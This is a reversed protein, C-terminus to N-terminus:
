EGDYFMKRPVSPDCSASILGRVIPTSRSELFDLGAAGTGHPHEFQTPSSALPSGHVAIRCPFNPRFPIRPMGDQRDVVRYEPEFGDVPPLARRTEPLITREPRFEFAPLRTVWGVIAWGLFAAAILALTIAIANLQRADDWM